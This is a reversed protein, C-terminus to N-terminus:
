LMSNLALHFSFLSQSNLTLSAGSAACWTPIPELQDVSLGPAHIYVFSGAYAAQIARSIWSLACNSWAALKRASRLSTSGSDWIRKCPAPAPPVGVALASCVLM